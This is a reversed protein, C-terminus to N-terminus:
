RNCLVGAYRVEMRSGGGAMGGQMRGLESETGGLAHWRESVSKSM